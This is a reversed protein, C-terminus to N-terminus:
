CPARAACRRPPWRCRIAGSTSRPRISSCSSWTPWRRAPGRRWRWARASRAAAPQDHAAYLGGLGGTALVVRRSPLLCADGAQAGARRAVGGTMSWAPRRRALGRDGHDVADGARRRGARRMIEAARATAAPMSSGAAATRPRWASRWLPRGSRPRLPVGLRESSTSPPRRRRPWRSSSPRTAWAPAPRWRTPPMCRRGLRGRGAGRRHRGAGLRQGCGRGVAGQGAPRGAAAGAAAGTALGALGAGVIVRAAPSIPGCPRCPPRVEASRWCASSPAARASPSPRSRGDGRPDHDRARAPDQAAHHAEHAPVPQLAARVRHRSARGRRQREDLMRHDAGRAGPARTGVYDIMAATSGVFDAEAVVEPPCEPHALVVVGPHGARCSRSTARRHLARAGRLPGDWAIIKSRPRARSTAALYEDPLMIVRDARGLSEVVQVANGSTCCIDTEAKVEASTNVYTVVPVGPYRQRLLRVDAGTISAALSCGARLDPILVTKDPNLIKATEAMFHVGALM